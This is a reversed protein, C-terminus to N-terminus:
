GIKQIIKKNTLQAALVLTVLVKVGVIIALFWISVFVWHYFIKKTAVLYMFFHM